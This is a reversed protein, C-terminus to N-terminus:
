LFLPQPTDKRKPAVKGRVYVTKTEPTRFRKSILLWAPQPVEDLKKLM